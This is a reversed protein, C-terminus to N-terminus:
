SFACILGTYGLTATAESVLQPPTEDGSSQKKNNREPDENGVPTQCQSHQLKGVCTGPIDRLM